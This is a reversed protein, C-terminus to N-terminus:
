NSPRALSPHRNNPYKPLLCVCEFGEDTLREIGSGRVAFCSCVDCWVSDSCEGSSPSGSLGSIDGQRHAPLLLYTCLCHKACHLPLLWRRSAAKWHSTQLYVYWYARAQHAEIRPEWAISSVTNAITSADSIRTRPKKGTRPLHTSQPAASAHPQTRFPLIGLGLRQKEGV